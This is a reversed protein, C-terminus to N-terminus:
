SPTSRRVAEARERMIALGWSAHALSARAVDFGLGDDAITITVQDRSEAFLIEIRKAQAHMVANILAGQAVRFLAMEAAPPLRPVFPKGQISIPVTIRAGLNAAYTRLAAHLGYDDLAPPHLDAMVDRVHTITEELLTQTDELRASVARLSEQPLQSRLVSLNLNLASLNAGVRDHLERNFNRRATEDAVMLRRSLGLLRKANDHLVQEAQKRQTIDRLTTATGIIRGNNDKIASLNATFDIHRGDKAIHVTDHNPVM